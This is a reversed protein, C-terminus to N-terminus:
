ADALFPIAAMMAIIVLGFVAGSVTLIQWITMDGHQACMRHEVETDVVSIGHPCGQTRVPYRRRGHPDVVLPREFLM